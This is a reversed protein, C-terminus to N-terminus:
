CGVIFGLLFRVGLGSFWTAPLEGSGGLPSRSEPYSIPCRPFGPLRPTELFRAGRRESRGVARAKDAGAAVGGAGRPM